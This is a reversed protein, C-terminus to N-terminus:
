KAGAKIADEVAHNVKWVHLLSLFASYTEPGSVDTMPHVCYDDATFTVLVAGDAPRIEEYEPGDDGLTAATVAWRLAALQFAESPYPNHKGNSRTKYDCVVNTYLGVTGRLDLTGGYGEGIVTMETRGEPMQEKVFAKAAPLFVRADASMEWEVDGLKDPNAVATELWDHITTGAAAAKDRKTRFAGITPKLDAYRQEPDRSANVVTDVFAGLNDAIHEAVTRAAWWTLPGSKDLMGLVNTVSPYQQGDPAPYHRGKGRVTTALAPQTM